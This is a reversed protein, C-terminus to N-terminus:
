SYRTCDKIREIIKWNSKKDYEDDMLVILLLKAVSDYEVM